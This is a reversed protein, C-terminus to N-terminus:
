IVVVIIRDAGDQHSNLAHTPVCVIRAPLSMVAKAPTVVVPAIVHVIVVSASALAVSLIRTVPMCTREVLQCMSGFAPLMLLNDTFGPVALTRPIVLSTEFKPARDCTVPAILLSAITIGQCDNLLRM